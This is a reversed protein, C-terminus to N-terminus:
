TTFVKILVNKSWRAKVRNLLLLQLFKLQVLKKLGGFFTCRLAKSYTQISNLSSAYSRFWLFWQLVMCNRINQTLLVSNGYIICCNCQEAIWKQWMPCWLILSVINHKMLLDTSCINKIVVYSLFVKTGSHYANM